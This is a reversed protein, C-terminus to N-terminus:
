VRFGLGKNGWAGGKPNILDLWGLGWVKIVSGSDQGNRVSM